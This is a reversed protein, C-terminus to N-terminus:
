AILEVNHPAEATTPGDAMCGLLEPVEIMFAHDDESWYLIIEYKMFVVGFQYKLIVGRVQKVQYPRTMNGAPQINIIEGAGGKKYKHLHFARGQRPM